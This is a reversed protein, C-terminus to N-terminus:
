KRKEKKEKKWKEIAESSFMVDDVNMHHKKGLKRMMKNWKIPNNEAVDYSVTWRFSIKGQVCDKEIEKTLEEAREQDEKPNVSLGAAKESDTKSLFYKIDDLYRDKEYTKKIPYELM